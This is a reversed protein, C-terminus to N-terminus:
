PPAPDRLQGRRLRPRRLPEAIEGTPTQMMTVITVKVTTTAQKKLIEELVGRQELTGRPVWSEVM